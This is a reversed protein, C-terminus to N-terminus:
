HLFHYLVVVGVIVLLLVTLQLLVFGRRSLRKSQSTNSTDGLSMNLDRKREQEKIKLEALAEYQRPDPEPWHM